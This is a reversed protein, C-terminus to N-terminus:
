VLIWYHLINMRFTNKKLLLHRVSNKVHREVYMWMLNSLLFEVQRLIRNKRSIDDSDMRAIYSYVGESIIQDIMTNLAVALGQNSKGKIYKMRMDSNAMEEIYRESHDQIPGDRYIFFDFNIYSQSLISEVATKLYDARDAHYVSMIIAVKTM